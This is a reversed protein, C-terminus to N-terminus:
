LNKPDRIMQNMKENYTKSKEFIREFVAMDQYNQPFYVTFPGESLKVPM